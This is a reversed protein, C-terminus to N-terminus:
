KGYLTITLRTDCQQGDKNNYFCSLWTDWETLSDVEWSINTGNGKQTGVAAELGFVTGICDTECVSCSATAPKGYRAVLSPPTFVPSDTCQETATLFVDSLLKLHEASNELVNDILGKRLPTRLRVM